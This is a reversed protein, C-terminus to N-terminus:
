LAEVFDVEYKYFGSVGLQWSQTDGAFRVTFPVATYTVTDSSTVAEVLSPTIALAGAGSRDATVMYVKNHGSFKVFDGAKLTGTLGAVTVSGLGKATTSCTVTGGATGSTTSETPLVITFIGHEGEQDVVFAKVPNFDVQKLPPYTATFSWYQGAMKRTQVRGSLSTSKLTPNNSTPSLSNFVPSTPFSM